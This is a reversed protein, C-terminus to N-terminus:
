TIRRCRIAKKNKRVRAFTCSHRPLRTACCVSIIQIMPPCSLAMGPVGRSNCLSVRSDDKDALVTKIQHRRLMHTAVNLGNRVRRLYFCGIDLLVDASAPQLMVDVPHQNFASDESCNSVLEHSDVPLTKNSFLELKTVFTM